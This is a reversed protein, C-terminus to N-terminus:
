GGRVTHGFKFMTATRTDNNVYFFLRMGQNLRIETYGTDNFYRPELLQRPNPSKFPVMENYYTKGGLQEAAQSPTLGEDKIANKFRFYKAKSVDDLSDFGPVGRQSNYFKVTWRASSAEASRTSSGAMATTRSSGARTAGGSMGRAMARGAERSDGSLGSRFAGAVKSAGQAAAGAGAAFSALGLGMSVYGLVDGLESQPMVEHAVESAIGTIGSALALTLSAIALPTTAGFTLISAAISFLSLGVGLATQWSVHGTPDVRNIPDGLCYAYPNLGGAGFPSLSDPSLFRMLTPSYARYGNGLLYLGTLPDLQEGSFGTLSFMGGEAPCYGYPSYAIDSRQTDSVITLVSQQQDTGFLKVAAGAQHEGLLMGSQRWCTRRDDGRVENIVRGDQYFRRALAAAPQSLEILRDRADYRYGRIVTGAASAIQTLRGLPDYSLTRAQDDQIMQGNADYHLTVPPPYDARSHRVEILQTPDNASYIFTTTNSAGPFETQLSVINDLADFVYTQEIIEKGYPDRPRQTGQCTYGTLRGRPDYSFREDRIVEDGSSLVKQALKGSLTYSSALIQTAAKGIQFSRSTERGLDDYTLRTIVSQRAQKDQSKVQELLGLANYVFDAKLAGQEFSTPRGWEDYDTKHENGLVDVCTLPRGSFSYTYSATQELTEGVTIENKLRGSPYYEFRTEHGQEVCSTPQGHVASYTFTALLGTATRQMLRGGFDRDYVFEIKEGRTSKQWAPQGFGAEYGAIVKRGGVTSESLRGLGDFAQRGLSQGSVKVETPLPEHSHPAYEAEVASGDPLVSRCLRNFVDYEYETKNGVPDTQSIARGLGDYEHVIKGLSEENVNFSQIRDPKGFDNLSTITKGMGELWLTETRAVPDIERHEKRGDGHLTTKVQGWDDYIFGTKVPRIVGGWWDSHTQEVLRGLADHRAAYIVRWQTRAAEDPNDCDQEEIAVVRGLGDYAVKQQVGVVDTTLMTAPAKSSAVQYVTRRTAASATGPSFTQSLPRGIADFEFAVAGIDESQEGLSMGNLASLTRAATKVTGDFGQVTTRVELRNSQLVYSFATVTAMANQTVTQKQLLGHRLPDDPQNFYVRETKSRLIEGSAALDYFSEEVPLVAPLLSGQLGPQLAHRYRTLTSAAARAGSAPIITRQKEFRIFGLPDAPCGDAGTAPYFESLTTVGDSGVHKLLNGAADFETRTVEERSKGTKRNEYRLTQVKPLRFQAPQDLFNKRPEIHYETSRNTIMRNCATVQSVLLHYKNYTRVTSSHVRDGSMLMETSSYEYDSSSQYLTDGEPSWRIDDEDFGLFNKQSFEYSKTIAPQNQRPFVTHSIVYPMSRIPSGPPFQHGIDQYGIIERAGLPSDVQTLCRISGVPEYTLYWSGGVPLDISTVADNALSLVFSAECETGPYQTLTVKGETRSVKLLTRQSDRVAVLVPQENIATYDLMIAAGNAAVIRMPVAVDRADFVKLEERLGSKHVVDFRGQAPRNVKITELKLEDFVLRTATQKAKFSGGGSLTLLENTVDYRTMAMSWGAGFGTDASNLPNFSLNIPLSPGNLDGSKIEGLTLSCTYIGTRPDVGGALFEDFNFANSYVSSVETVAM